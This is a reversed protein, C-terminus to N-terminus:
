STLPPRSPLRTFDMSRVTLSSSVRLRSPRRSLHTELRLKLRRRRPRAFRENELLPGNSPAIAPSEGDRLSVIAISTPIRPPSRSPVAVSRRWRHLLPLFSLFSLKFTAALLKVPLSVDDLSLFSPGPVQLAAEDNEPPPSGP